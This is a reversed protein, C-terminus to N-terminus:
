SVRPNKGKLIQGSEVQYVIYDAQPRHYFYMGLVQGDADGGAIVEFTHQEMGYKAGSRYYVSIEYLGAAYASSLYLQTRFVGVQITKDWLPMEEATVLSSSSWLKLHPVQDPMVPSDNADTTQLWVDLYTGLQHRGLYM